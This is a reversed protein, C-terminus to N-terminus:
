GGAGLGLSVRGGAQISTNPHNHSRGGGGRGLGGAGQQLGAPSAIPGMPSHRRCDCARLASRINIRDVPAFPGTLSRSNFREAQLWGDRRTPLPGPLCSPAPTPPCWGPALTRTPINKSVRVRSYWGLASVAQSPGRSGQHGCAQTWGCGVEQCGRLLSAATGQEHLSGGGRRGRKSNQETKWIAGGGHLRGSKWEM